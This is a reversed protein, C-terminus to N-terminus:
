GGFAIRCSLACEADSKNRPSPRRNGGTSRPPAARVSTEEHTRNRCDGSSPTPLSTTGLGVHLRDRETLRLGRYTERQTCTDKSLYEDSDVRIESRAHVFAPPLQKDPQVKGFGSWTEASVWTDEVGRLSQRSLSASEVLAVPADPFHEAAPLVGDLFHRVRDPDVNDGFAVEVMHPYLGQLGPQAAKLERTAASNIGPAAALWPNRVPFPTWRCARVGSTIASSKSPATSAGHGPGNRVGVRQRIWRRM